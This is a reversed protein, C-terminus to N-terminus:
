DPRASRTALRVYRRLSRRNRLLRRDAVALYRVRRGRIGILRPSHPSARFLGPAIQTRRRYARLTRTTRGPRVGRNGHSRATTVVLRARGRPSLVATVRGRSRKVCWSLTRRTRARTRVPLRLLRRRTYGLRVRGINRPGIPAKRALCRQARSGAGPPRPGCDPRTALAGASDVKGGSGIVVQGPKPGGPQGWWNGRASVAFGSTEV